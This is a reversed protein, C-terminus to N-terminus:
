FPLDEIQLWDFKDRYIERPKAWEQPGVYGRKEIEDIIRASSAFWIWLWKQIITASAKKEKKLIALAKQIDEEEAEPRDKPEDVKNM